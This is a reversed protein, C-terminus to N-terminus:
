PAMSRSPCRSRPSMPGSPGNALLLARENQHPGREKGRITVRDGTVAVVIDGPELGLMPAAIMIRYDTQYVRVPLAHVQAPM